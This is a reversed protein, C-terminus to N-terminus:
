TGITFESEKLSALRHPMEKFASRLVRSTSELLSLESEQLVVSKGRIRENESMFGSNESKRKLPVTSKARVKRKGAYNSAPAQSLSRGRTSTAARNEKDDLYLLKKASRKPAGLVGTCITAGCFCPPLIGSPTAKCMSYDFTLEEGAAVTRITSIVLRSTNNVQVVHFDCNPYCSHNIYRTTGGIYTADIYCDSSVKAVFNMEERNAFGQSRLIRRRLEELNIIEGFYEGIFTKPLLNATARLGKGCKETEFIEVSKCPGNDQIQRNGCPGIKKCSVPCESQMSRNICHSSPGCRDPLDAPCGCDEPLEKKSLYAKMLRGKENRKVYRNDIKVEIKQGRSPKQDKSLPPSPGKLIDQANSWEIQLLDEAFKYGKQYFYDDPEMAIVKNHPLVNFSHKGKYSMWRVAVYGPKGLRKDKVPYELISIVECPYYPFPLGTCQSYGMCKMGETVFEFDCCWMCTFVERGNVTTIQIEKSKARVCKLHVSRICQSCKILRGESKDKSNCGSCHTAHTGNGFKRHRPCIIKNAGGIGIGAPICSKHWSLECQSCSVFEGYFARSRLNRGYCLTCYHLSCFREESRHDRMADPFFGGVAYSDFCPVHFSVDCSTRCCSLLEGKEGSVDETSRCCFCVGARNRAPFAFNDKTTIAILSDGLM